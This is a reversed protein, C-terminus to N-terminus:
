KFGDVAERGRQFRLDPPMVGGAVKRDSVILGGKEVKNEVKNVVVLVKLIPFPPGKRLQM